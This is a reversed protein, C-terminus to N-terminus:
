ENKNDEAKEEKKDEEKKEPEETKKAEAEKPEEKPEEKPSEAEAKEAEEAEEKEKLEKEEKELREKIKAEKEERVKKEADLRQKEEDEVAKKAEDEESKLKLEKDKLWAEYRREAEEEDFSGKKVGDLLHKKMLVGKQSLIARCTDSPQAGKQVWYLARDFDLEITAPKTNPLYSGIREINRGDRPARGDAVVIHYFPIRKRGHRALRITVPM